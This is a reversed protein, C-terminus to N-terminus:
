VANLYFLKTGRYYVSSSCKHYNINEYSSPVGYYMDHPLM